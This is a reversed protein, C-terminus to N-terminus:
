NAIERRQNSKQFTKIFLLYLFSMSILLNTFYMVCYSFLFFSSFSGADAIKLDWHEAKTVKLCFM